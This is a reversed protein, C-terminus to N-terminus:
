LKCVDFGVRTKKMGEAWALESVQTRLLYHDSYLRSRGGSTDLFSTRMCGNVM